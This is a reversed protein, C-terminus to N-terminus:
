GSSSFISIPSVDGPLQVCSSPSSLISQPPSFLDSPTHPTLQLIRTADHRALLISLYMHHTDYAFTNLHYSIDLGQLLSFGYDFSGEIWGCHLYCEPWQTGAVTFLRLLTPYHLRHYQWRSCEWFIHKATEENENCYPCLPDTALNSKFLRHTHDLSGTLIHRLISQHLPNNQSLYFSRTLSIDISSILGQCDKRRKSASHLYHQRYSNRILHKFFHLPEDVSYAVESTHLVFPDEFLFGFQKAAKRLRYFPGWQLRYTSHWLQSLRHRHLTTSQKIYLLYEIIHRYNLFLQPTLLHGPAVLSYLAERCVWRSRKPVLITTIAHKLSSCQSPQIDCSFSFQNYCSSVLSVFLRYAVSYPFPLKAIKKARQLVTSDHQQLSSAYPVGIDIPSGLLFPYFCFALQDFDSSYTRTPSSKSWLQCKALNLQLDTTSSFLKMIDFAVLLVDWSSSVITLDDAFAYVTLGELLSLKNVLPCLVCNLIVVSM